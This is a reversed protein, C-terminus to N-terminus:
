TVEQNLVRPIKKCHNTYLGFEAGQAPYSLVNGGKWDWKKGSAGKGVVYWSHLGGSGLKQFSGPSEKKQGKQKRYNPIKKIEQWLQDCLKGRRQGEQKLIVVVMYERVRECMM